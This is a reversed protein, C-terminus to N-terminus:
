LTGVAGVRREVVDVVDGYREHRKPACATLQQLTAVARKRRASLTRVARM